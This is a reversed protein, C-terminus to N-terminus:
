MHRIQRTVCQTFQERTFPKALFDDMGAQQCAIRDSPMANATVAVIPAHQNPGPQARIRRTAELGDMEPMQIDMLILAYAAQQAAQVAQLGNEALTPTYGLRALLAMALKQNIINDEVLLVDISAPPVQAPTSDQPLM